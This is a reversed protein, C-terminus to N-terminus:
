SVSAVVKSEQSVVLACEQEAIDADRNFVADALAEYSALLEAPPHAAFGGLDHRSHIVATTSPVLAAFMENDSCELLMSHFEINAELFEQSGGEGSEGLERMTKALDRLQQGERQSAAIAAIRAARPGIAERLATLSSLQEERQTPVQLRWRIISESFVSWREAPLVTIGVRRSSSVMGLHELARMTERAVTRSISFSECLTQLTFKEGAKIKGSVIDLGIQDLVTELLPAHPRLPMASM